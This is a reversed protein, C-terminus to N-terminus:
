RLLSHWHGQQPGAVVRFAVRVRVRVRVNASVRVRVRVNASVRVRVRVRIMVRVGVRALSGCTGRDRSLSATGKTPLFTVRVRVGFM